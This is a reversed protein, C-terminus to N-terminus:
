SRVGFMIRPGPAPRVPGRAEFWRFIRLAALFARQDEVLEDEPFELVHLNGPDNKPCRVIIRRAADYGMEEAALAYAALQLRWEHQGLHTKSSKADFIAPGGDRMLMIGDCTGAYKWQRSVLLKEAVVCVSVHEDMWALYPAALVAEDADLLHRQGLNVREIIKHLATGYDTAERSIREAEAAGVRAKWEAIGHNPIAQALITTVSPLRQGDVVYFRGTM